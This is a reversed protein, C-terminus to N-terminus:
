PAVVAVSVLTAAQIAAELTRGALIRGGSSPVILIDNAELSLDPAKAQMIKKLHVPTEVMGSAGKHLIKVGNLKASRTRGGALAVAQLVTLGSADMLLGSPRGVDGVVYVIEAKRVVEECCFLEFFRRSPGAL